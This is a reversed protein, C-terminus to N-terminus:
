EYIRINFLCQLEKKFILFHKFVFGFSVLLSCPTTTFVQLGLVQSASGPVDLLKLSAKALTSPQTLGQRLCVSVCVCLKTGKPLRPQLEDM